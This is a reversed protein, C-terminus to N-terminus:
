KNALFEELAQNFAQPKELFLAHGADPIVKLASGPIKGQIYEGAVQNDRSVVVLAPVSIQPFIPRRDGTVLDLLLAMATGTPTKMSGGVLESYLAVSQQSKFLGRVHQDAAKARDDEMALALERAQQLAAKSPYDKDGIGPPAWDVLVLGAPQMAEPSSIYELITVAGAAWGVLTPRELNLKKLFAHLDAAHQHYTNGVDTRSTLGQSRPDLAIVHYGRAALYPIQEKWVDATMLWGPLLVVHRDGSGGELYHMKIDGVQVSADRWARDAAPLASVLLLVAAGVGAMRIIMRM